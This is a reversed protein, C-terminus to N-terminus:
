VFTVPDETKLKKTPSQDTASTAMIQVAQRMAECIIKIERDSLSANFPPMAYLFNSFPRLWVGKKILTETMEKKTEVSLADHFEVVAIAGLVRVDKVVKPFETLVPQLGEKFLNEIQKVNKKWDSSALLDISACAISCALPNAM